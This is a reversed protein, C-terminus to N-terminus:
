GAGAWVGGHGLVGYHYGMCAHTGSSKGEGEIRNVLLGEGKRESVLPGLGDAESAKTKRTKSLAAVWIGGM